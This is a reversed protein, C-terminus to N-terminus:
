ASVRFPVFHAHCCFAGHARFGLEATMTVQPAKRCLKEQSDSLRERGYSPFTGQLVLMLTLYAAVVAGLVSPKVLCCKM